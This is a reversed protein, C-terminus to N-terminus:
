REKAAIAQRQVEAVNSMGISATSPRGACQLWTPVPQVCAPAATDEGRSDPVAGLRMKLMSYRVVAVNPAFEAVGLEIILHRKYSVAM